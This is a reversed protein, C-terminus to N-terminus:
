TRQPGPALDHRNQMRDKVEAACVARLIDGRFLRLGLLGRYRDPLDDALKVVVWLLGFMDDEGALRDLLGLIADVPISLSQTLDQLSEVEGGLAHALTTVLADRTGGEEHLVDVKSTEAGVDGMRLGRLISLVVDSHMVSFLNKAAHMHGDTRAVVFGAAHRDVEFVARFALADDDDAAALVAAGIVSIQGEEWDMGGIHFLGGLRGAGVAVGTDGHGRTGEGDM